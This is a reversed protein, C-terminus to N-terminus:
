AKPTAREIAWSKTAQDLDSWHDELTSNSRADTLWQDFLHNEWIDHVPSENSYYLFESGLYVTWDAPIVTDTAKDEKSIAKLLWYAGQSNVSDDYLPEALLQGPELALAAKEFAESMLGEGETVTILGGYYASYDQSNEAVLAEMDQGSEISQRLEAAKQASYTLIARVEVTKPQNEETTPQESTDSQGETGPEETTSEQNEASEPLAQIVWYGGTRMADEDWVAQSLEGPELESLAADLVPEAIGWPALPLWLSEGKESSPLLDISLAQAVAAFDEGAELKQVAEQYKAEDEVMMAQIQIQPISAPLKEDVMAESLKPQLLGWEIMERAVKDKELTSGALAKDIEESTVQLGRNHAETGILQFNQIYPVTQGALGSLDQVNGGIALLRLVGIFYELNFSRDNVVAVTTRLRAADQQHPVYVNQHYGWGLVALVAVIVFGGVALTIRNVRRDRQWRSIQRRTPARHEASQKQKKGM